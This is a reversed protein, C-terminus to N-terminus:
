HDRDAILNALLFLGMLVLLMTVIFMDPLDISGQTANEAVSVWDLMLPLGLAFCVAFPFVKLVINAFGSFWRRRKSPPLGIFGALFIGGITNTSVLVTVADIGANVLGVAVLALGCLILVAILSNFGHRKICHFLGLPFFVLSLLVPLAHRVDSPFTNEHKM